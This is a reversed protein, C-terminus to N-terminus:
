LNAMLVECPADYELSGEALLIIGPSLVAQSCVLHGEHLTRVGKDKEASADRELDNMYPIANKKVLEFLANMAGSLNLSDLLAANVANRASTLEKSLTEEKDQM